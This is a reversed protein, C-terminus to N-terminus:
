NSQITEVLVDQGAQDVGEEPLDKLVGVRPLYNLQVEFQNGNKNQFDKLNQSQLGGVIQPGVELSVVPHEVQRHGEVSGIQEKGVLLDLIPRPQKPM